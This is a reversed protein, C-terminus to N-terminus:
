TTPAVAGLEAEIAARVKTRARHLLVRQNTESISLANCVESAMWGAIDRLTIVERQSPPLADIAGILVSRTEGSLLREEPLGWPAPGLKWHGAYVPHDSAFFRDPDLGDGTESDASTASSFPITRAERQSRTRAVNVLIRFMWTRLTSRGEFRDIGRIVGIWTEQVIEEAVAQSPAYTRAIRLLTANHEDFLMRFAAEDGRRLAGVVPEEDAVEM